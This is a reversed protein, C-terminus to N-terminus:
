NPGFGKEIECSISGHFQIKKFCKMNKKFCKMFHERERLLFLAVTASNKKQQRGRLRAAQLPPRPARGTILGLGLSPRLL